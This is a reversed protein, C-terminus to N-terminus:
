PIVFVVSYEMDMAVTINMRCCCWCNLPTMSTTCSTHGFNDIQQSKLGNIRMQYKIKERQSNIIYQRRKDWM